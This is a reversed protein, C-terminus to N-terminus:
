PVYANPDSSSGIKQVCVRQMDRLNFYLHVKNLGMKRSVYTLWRSVRESKSVVGINWLLRDVTLSRGVYDLRITRFGAAEYLRKLTATTFFYIHGLCSISRERRGLLRFMLTDYRPTEIVLHGNPKLVRSIERLTTLPADLHEIVHNM